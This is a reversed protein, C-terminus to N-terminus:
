PRRLVLSWPPLEVGHPLDVRLDRVSAMVDPPTRDTATM